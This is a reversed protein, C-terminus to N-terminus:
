PNPFLCTRDWEGLGFGNIIFDYNSWGGYTQLPDNVFFMDGIMATIVVAHSSDVDRWQIIAEVPRGALIEAQLVNLNLGETRFELLFSNSILGSDNFMREFDSDECGDALCVPEADASPCCAAAKVISAVACQNKAIGYYRLIMEACAAYCWAARDQPINEIGLIEQPPAPAEFDEALLDATILIGDDILLPM